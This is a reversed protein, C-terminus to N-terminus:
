NGVEIRRNKSCNESPTLWQHNEPVFAQKIQESDSLDFMCLPKIHDIHYKSIDEPFPKLHEIIAKFDIGYDKAIKFKGTKTYINLVARLRNRLRETIAYNLDTARKIKLYKNHRVRIKEKNKLRYAKANEKNNDRWIKQKLRTLPKDTYRKQRVKHAEKNKDYLNKRYGKKQSIWNDKNAFVKEPNSRQWNQWRIKVKQKLCDKCFKKDKRKYFEIENRCNLCYIKEKKVEM